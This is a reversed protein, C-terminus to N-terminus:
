RHQLDERASAILDRADEGGVSDARAILVEAEEVRGLEGLCRARDLRPEVLESMLYKERGVRIAHEYSREAEAHRNLEHFTNGLGRMPGALYSHDEGYTAIYIRVAREYYPLATEPHGLTFHELALNKVPVANESDEPGLTTDVLTVAWSFYQRAGEHDGLERRILGLNNLCWSIQVHDHGLSEQWVVMARRQVREAEDYREAERLLNAHNTLVVGINPHTPGYVKELLPLAETLLRDATELDGNYRVAVAYNVRVGAPMPSGAEAEKDLITLAREFYVISEEIERKDRKVLALHNLCNGVLLHDPGHAAELDALAVVLYEEAEDLRNGKYAALGRWDRTLATVPDHPGLAKERIQLAEGLAATAAESDRMREHVRGLTFLAEALDLDNPGPHERRTAVARELITQAEEYLALEGYVDGITTELSARLEPQGALDLEIREAGADLLDRATVSEGKARTPASISFLDRMFEAMETAKAAESRAIDREDSLRSTYVMTLAVVAVIAASALVSAAANRQVFKKMRYTLTDPRASVTQGALQREIDRVLQDVSAYRRDPEKRLTMILITDLDGSLERRLRGLSVRRTGELEVTSLPDTGPVVHATQAEKVASSPRLPKSECISRLLGVEDTTDGRYPWRGTLLIYLLMGLQYVDTATTVAQGEIQEPSAFAPTMARMVSRTALADEGILKAIGFDLLKVHGEDTVLINSPKIDRHVVLNRHAHAVVRGVRAFLKLREKVTLRREDCYEDIPQGDVYEMVLYPDGRDTAGADLLGAIGPHNIQALIKRELEFRRLMEASPIGTQLIKFAVLQEFEAEVRKALYVVAMGGRGLESIIEYSGITTGILSAAALDAGRALEAAFAGEHAGGTNLAQTDDPNECAKLLRRVLAELEADHGCSETLYTERADGELDLAKDFIEDALRRDPGPGTM